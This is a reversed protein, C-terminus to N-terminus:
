ASLLKGTKFAQSTAVKAVTMGATAYPHLEQAYLMGGYRSSLVAVKDQLPDIIEAVAQGAAVLTGPALLFNVVGPHPAQLNESGSLPSAPYPLPPLAPAEGAQTTGSARWFPSYPPIACM